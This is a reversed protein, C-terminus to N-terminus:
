WRAPELVIPEASLDRERLSDEDKDGEWVRVIHLPSVPYEQPAHNLYGLRPDFKLEVRRRLSSDYLTLTERESGASPIRLFLVLAHELGFSRLGANLRYILMFDELATGTNRLLVFDDAVKLADM